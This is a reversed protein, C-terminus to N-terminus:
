KKAKLMSFEATGTKQSDVFQFGKNWGAYFWSRVVQYDGSGTSLEFDANRSVDSRYAPIGKVFGEWRKKDLNYIMVVDRSTSNPVLQFMYSGPALVINGIQVQEPTTFMTSWQTDPDAKVVSVFSCAILAFAVFFVMKKVEFRM